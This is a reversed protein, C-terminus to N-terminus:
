VTICEINYDEIVSRFLDDIETQWKKDTDRIGDAYIPRPKCYYIRDYPKGNKTYNLILNVIHDIEEVTMKEYHNLSISYPLVDWISRDCIIYGIEDPNLIKGLYDEAEREQRIQELAIILQSTFGSDRNIDIGYDTHVKTAIESILRVKYGEDMLFSALRRSTTSKAASHTGIYAIKRITM